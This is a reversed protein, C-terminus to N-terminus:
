SKVQGAVSPNVVFDNPVEVWIDLYYMFNEERLKINQKSAKHLLYSGEDDFVAQYSKKCIKSVSALPRSINAVEFAMTM